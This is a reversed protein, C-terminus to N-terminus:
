VLISQSTHWYLVLATLIRAKKTRRKHPFGAGRFSFCPKQHSQSRKPHVTGRLVRGLLQISCSSPHKTGPSPFVRVGEAPSKQLATQKERPESSAVLLPSAIVRM